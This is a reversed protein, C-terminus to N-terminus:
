TAARRSFDPTLRAEDNWFPLNNRSSIPNRTVTSAM